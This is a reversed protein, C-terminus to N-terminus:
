TTTDPAHEHRLSSEHPSPDDHVHTAVDVPM